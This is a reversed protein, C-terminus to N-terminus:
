DARHMISFGNEAGASVGLISNISINYWVGDYCGVDVFLYYEEGDFDLEIAYSTIEECTLHGYQSHNREYVAMDVGELMEPTLLDHISAKSMKEEFSPDSIVDVFQAIEAEEWNVVTEMSGSPSEDLVLYFYQQKFDNVLDGVRSYYNVATQFEGSNEFACEAYIYNYYKRFQIYEDLDYGEVFTEVAFTAIMADVDAALFAEAYAKAAKEASEYGAGEFGERKDSLQAKCGAFSLMLAALLIFAAICKSQKKM